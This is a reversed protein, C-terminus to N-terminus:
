VRNMKADLRDLDVLDETDASRKVRPAKGDSERKRIMHAALPAPAPAPAPAPRRADSVNVMKINTFHCALASQM